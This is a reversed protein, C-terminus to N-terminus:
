CGLGQHGEESLAGETPEEKQGRCKRHKVKGEKKEMETMSHVSSMAEPEMGEGTGAMELESEGGEQRGGQRGVWSEKQALLGARGKAQRILSLQLWVKTAAGRGLHNTGQLLTVAVHEPVPCDTPIEQRGSLHIFHLEYEM